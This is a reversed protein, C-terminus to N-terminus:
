EQYIQSHIVPRINKPPPVFVSPPTTKSKAVEEPPPVPTPTAQTPTAVAPVVPVLTALDPTILPQGGVALLPQPPLTPQPMAHQIPTTDTRVNDNIFLGRRHYNTGLDEVSVKQAMMRLM